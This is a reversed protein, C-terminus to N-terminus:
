CDINKMLTEAVLFDVHSDIDISNEREMVYAYSEDNYFNETETYFPVDCLYIAGNLRYYVELEQRRKNNKNSLFNSMSHNENLTGMLLPSHEAECVSIVSKAKKENLINWTSIIDNKNRLPSTPQLLMFYDYTKGIAAYKEIIDKIVDSTPSEDTALKSPRLFPVSAGYKVSIDAYEQSDTSVMIDSFIKSDVAAKITYSILPKNNLLKINKDKLGKSGSRAPIIALVRSKM